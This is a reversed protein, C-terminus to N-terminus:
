EGAEGATSAEELGSICWSTGRSKFEEGSLLFLADGYKPNPWGNHPTQYQIKGHKLRFTVPKKWHEDYSHVLGKGARRFNIEGKLFLGENLATVYRALNALKHCRQHAIKSM